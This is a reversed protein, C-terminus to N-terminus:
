RDQRAAELAAQLDEPLESSVEVAQGGSPHPFVIRDAHLFHRTLGGLEPGEYLRDGALPHGVAALHARIQHRRATRARVRVRTWAGVPETEVIETEAPQPRLREVDSELMCAMVRRPDGPQAAIPFDLTRPADLSGRCLATYQKDFRGAKLADRLREFSDRDRAAVLLGSTDTDLRHVIGPERSAYGVGGMEPYRAVLAGAATGTEEPRLPHSPVGAPKSVVVVAVDEYVVELPLDGDACAPFDAPPPVEELEVRDGALVTRGKRSARGNVRVKGEQTLKRARARSMGEVREVLVVDLRRGEDQETIEFQRAAV